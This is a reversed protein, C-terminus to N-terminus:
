HYLMRASEQHHLEAWFTIELVFDMHSRKTTVIALQCYFYKPDQLPDFYNRQAKHYWIKLDWGFVQSYAQFHNWINKQQQENLFMKSRKERVVAYSAEIDSQKFLFPLNAVLNNM